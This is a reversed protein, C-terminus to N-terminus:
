DSLAHLAAPRTLHIRRLSDLRVSGDAQLQSLTRSVTHITLGLYDAIDQRTMPLDFDDECGVREAYALLFGAVRELAGQRALILAHDQSRQYWDVSLRWLDGALATDHSALESLVNRPVSQITVATVAEATNRHQLRAEPGLVDGAHLFDCVQRRGDSLLRYTRVVGTLIRYVSDADEGEAFIEAGPQVARVRGVQDFVGAMSGPHRSGARSEQTSQPANFVSM